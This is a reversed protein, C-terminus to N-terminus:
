AAPMQLPAAHFAGADPPTGAYSGTRCNCATLYLTSELKAASHEIAKALYAAALRLLISNSMMSVM